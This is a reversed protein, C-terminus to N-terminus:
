KNPQATKNAWRKRNADKTMARLKDINKAANARGGAGAFAARILDIAIDKNCHPCKM